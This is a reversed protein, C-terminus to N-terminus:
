VTLWGEGQGGGGGSSKECSVNRECLTWLLLCCAPLLTTQKPRVITCDTCHIHHYAPNATLLTACLILMMLMNLNSGFINQAGDSSRGREKKTKTLRSLTVIHNIFGGSIAREPAPTSRHNPTPTSSLCLSLSLHMSHQAPQTSGTSSRWTSVSLSHHSGCSQM